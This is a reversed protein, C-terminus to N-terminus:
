LGDEDSSSGQDETESPKGFLDGVVERIFEDFLQLHERLRLKEFAFAAQRAKNGDFDRGTESIIRRVAHPFHPRLQCKTQYISLSQESPIFSEVFAVLKTVFM